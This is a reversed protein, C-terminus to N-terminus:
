TKQLCADPPKPLYSHTEVLSLIHSIIYRTFLLIIGMAQGKKHPEHPTAPVTPVPNSGAEVHQREHLMESVVHTAELHRKQDLVSSYIITCTTYM